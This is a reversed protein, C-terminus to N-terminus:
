LSSLDGVFPAHGMKAHAVTSKLFNRWSVRNLSILLETSPSGRNRVDTYIPENWSVSVSEGTVHSKRALIDIDNDTDHFAAKHRYLRWSAKTQLM